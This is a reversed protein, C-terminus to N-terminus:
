RIKAQLKNKLALEVKSKEEKVEVVTLTKDPSQFTLTITVSKKGEGLKPDAFIDRLEVQTLMKGGAGRATKIIQDASVTASVLISLDERSSPYKPIPTFTAPGPLNTLLSSLDLEGVWLSQRLGALGKFKPSITGLVGMVTDNLVVTAVTGEALYPSTGPLFTALPINLRELMSEIYGKLDSFSDATLALHTSEVPLNGERPQYVRGIEFIASSNGLNTNYSATSILGPVLSVRLYDWDKSISNAIKLAESNHIQDRSVMPPVSVENLGLSTLHERIQHLSTVIPHPATVPIAGEPMVSPIKSYGEIRAVEEILDVELSIDRERWSPVEVTLKDKTASVPKLGLKSLIKGAEKLSYDYGLYQDLKSKTLSVKNPQFPTPYIDVIESVIRGGAYRALLDATIELARVTGQTDVGREYRLSAESRLNFKTVTQRITVPDFIASEIIIESTGTTIGSGAGGMVGGLALIKESDAIVIQGFGLVRTIEDLTTIREGAKSERVTISSGKVSAANFAHLPQGTLLMVYNTIDVINNIPRMGAGRLRSQIFAPSPGVTLNGIKVASYRPCLTENVVKVSIPSKRTTASPKRGTLSKLASGTVVSIERALGYISLEDGRNTTVEIDLVEEPLQLAATLKSGIKLTEDLILIGAHDEGLGLEKASCLMGQSEVDRIKVKEIKMPTGERGVPVSSGVQAVPVKQGAAINSAGCVILLKKGPLAVTALQLKDANPHPNVKLIEGVLIGELGEGYTTVSAVTTGTENLRDVLVPLPPTSVYEKLWSLSALM